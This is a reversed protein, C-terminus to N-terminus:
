NALTREFWAQITAAIAEALRGQETPDTIWESETPHSMFGLEMLVAPAITPRALALNGWFVGYSPRDLRRTLEDHLFQALGQAQPQYWFMGIGQTTEANGDDPLANYHVSLAITPELEAIQALRDPIPLDQDTSRTLVVRAGRRELAAQLKLSTELNPTKEPIGAANIAGSERGGHGPDLLITIGALPASGSRLPPHKIRWHLVNGEYRLTWGWAQATALRARYELRNGPLVQWTLQSIAPNRQLFLTDTQAIAQHLTLILDQGEQRVEVPVPESLPFQVEVATGQNQARIGQVVAQLPTSSPEIAVESAQIWAGYDLRLWDGRRGTITAQSGQPLPTLRSHDTSPGTRAVGWPVTVRARDRRDRPWVTIRGRPTMPMEGDIYFRVQGWDDPRDPTFCGEYTTLSSPPPLDSGTLVSSNPLPSGGSPRPLMRFTQEAVRADITLNPRGTVRLCIPEGIPWGWDAMPELAALPTSLLPQNSIRNITRIETRDAWRIEFRNPGLQLPFSPAFHGFASRNVGQGNITVSGTPPATGLFFIRDSTTQHGDPPYVLRLEPSSPAPQAIAVGAWLLPAIAGVMLRSAGGLEWPRM